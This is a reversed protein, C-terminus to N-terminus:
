RWPQPRARRSSTWSRWWSRDKGPRQHYYKGYYKGYYGSLPRRDGNFVIGLVKAEDLAGLAEGLLQRPTRHAAVVLLFGDIWRSMHRCDPVLLVPPTDLVVCEYAHRADAMVETLRPSELAAYANDRPRGAPLVSLNYPTQHVLDALDAEGVLADSLGCHADLGLHASVFPRRLDADVLLVRSCPAQALTIALNIATTTKGDGAAPSTVALVHLGRTERVQQLYQRLVRYQDAEFSYPSTLSVLHEEVDPPNEAPSPPSGPRTERGPDSDLARMLPVAARSRPRMTSM